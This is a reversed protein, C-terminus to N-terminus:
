PRSSRAATESKMEVSTLETEIAGALQADKETFTVALQKALALQLKALRYDHRIMGQRAWDLRLAALNINRKAAIKEWQRIETRCEADEPEIQQARHYHHLVEAPVNTIVALNFWSKSHAPNLRLAEAFCDRAETVRGLDMYLRGLSFYQSASNPDLQLAQLAHRRANELDGIAAYASALNSHTIVTSGWQRLVRELLEIEAPFARQQELEAAVRLVSLMEPPAVGLRPQPLDLRLHALDVGQTEPSPPTEDSTWGAGWIVFSAWHVPHSPPWKGSDELLHAFVSTRKDNRRQRAAFETEYSRLEEVTLSQLFDSAKKLALSHTLGEQLKCKYFQDMLIAPTGAPVEYLTSIVLAYGAALFAAPLGMFEGAPDSAGAGTSCGNVVAVAGSPVAGRIMIERAILSSEKGDATHALELHSEWPSDLYSTAHGCYHVWSYYPMRSLVADATAQQGSIRETRIDATACRSEILEAEYTAQELQGDPNDILLVKQPTNALHRVTQLLIASSPAYSVASHPLGAHLPIRQLVADPIIVLRNVQAQQILEQLSHEATNKEALLRYTLKPINRMATIWHKTCQDLEILSARGAVPERCEHAVKAFRTYATLFDDFRQTLKEAGLNEFLICSDKINQSGTILFACLCNETVTLQLVATQGAQPLAAIVDALTPIRSSMLDALSPEVSLAREHAEKLRQEVLWVNRRAREREAEDTSLRALTQSHLYAERQAREAGEVEIRLHAPLRALLDTSLILLESLSAARARESYHFARELFEGQRRKDQLAKSFYAEVVRRYVYRYRRVVAIRDAPRSFLFPRAEILQIATEYDRAADVRIDLKRGGPNDTAHWYDPHDYLQWYIDGRLLFVQILEDFDGLKESHKVALDMKQMARGLLRLREPVTMDPDPKTALQFLSVGWMALDSVFVSQRLSVLDAAKQFRDAAAEWRKQHYRCRALTTLLRAEQMLARAHAPSVYLLDLARQALRECEALTQRAQASDPAAASLFQQERLLAQDSVTLCQLFQERLDQYIAEASELYRYADQLGIEDGLISLARALERLIAAEGKRDQVARTLDLADSGLGLADHYRGLPVLCAVMMALCSAEEAPRLQAKCRSVVAQYKELALEWRCAQFLNNAETTLGVCTESTNEHTLTSM